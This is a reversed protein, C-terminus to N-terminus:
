REVPWADLSPYSKKMITRVKRLYHYSDVLHGGRFVGKEQLLKIANCVGSHMDTLITKPKAKHIEFFM